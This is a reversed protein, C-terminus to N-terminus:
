EDASIGELKEQILASLEEAEAFQAALTEKLAAFREPFSGDDDEAVESGVYRGPTLVFGHSAIEELGVSKCFGPM